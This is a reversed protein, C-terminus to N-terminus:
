KEEGHIHGIQVNGSSTSVTTSEAYIAKVKLMGHVTSLNM